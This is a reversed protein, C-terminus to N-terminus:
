AEWNHIGEFGSHVCTTDCACLEHACISVTLTYPFLTVYLVLRHRKLHIYRKIGSLSDQESRGAYELQQMEVTTECSPPAELTM